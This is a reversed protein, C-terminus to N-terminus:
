TLVPLHNLKLKYFCHLDDFPSFFHGPIFDEYPLYIHAEMFYYSIRPHPKISIRIYQNSYYIPHNEQIYELFSGVTQPSPRTQLRHHYLFKNYCALPDYIESTESYLNTSTDELLPNTYLETNTNENDDPLLEDDPYTATLLSFTNSSLQVESSSLSITDSTNNFNETSASVM